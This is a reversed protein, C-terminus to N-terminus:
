NGATNSPVLNLRENLTFMLVDGSELTAQPHSILLHATVVGLGIAGGTLAGGPGAILGGTTAGAAAGAGLEIADRKARSTPRISGEAQVRNRSAPTSTVMASFRYRSGDALILTEPKLRLEGKGGLRGPSALLVRGEIEAGAPIMVQGDRLVDSAIRGHFTEGRESTASSLRTTLRVRISTGEGLENPGLAVPHVIDGDPDYPEPRTSLGPNAPSAAATGAPQVISADPDRPAYAPSPAPQPAPATDATQPAAAPADAPDAADTEAQSQAAPQAVLPKGANPKPKATPTTLITDDPPPNSTGELPSGPTQQQAGLTAALSLVAALMFQNRIM